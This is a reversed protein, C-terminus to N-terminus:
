ILNVLNMAYNTYFLINIKDVGIPFFVKQVSSLYVRSVAQTSIFRSGVNDIKVNEGKLPKWEQM